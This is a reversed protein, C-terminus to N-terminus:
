SMMNAADSQQGAFRLEGCEVADKVSGAWDPSFGLASAGFGPRYCDRWDTVFAAPTLARM